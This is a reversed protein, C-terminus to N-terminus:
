GQPPVLGLPDADPGPVAAVLQAAYVTPAAPKGVVGPVAASATTPRPQRHPAPEPAPLPVGRTSPAPLAATVLVSRGGVPGATNQVEFAGRDITGNVIRPFGPGRQDWDPADTNDGSDIAPSGPLLAMTLTPGGNDQLPGLKPDVDLLDTPAYGSGGMSKGFLNYASIALAGDLDPGNGQDYAQNGAVVSDLVSVGGSKVAIGGGGGWCEFPSGAGNAAVTSHDLALTAGAANYVGGGYGTCSDDPVGYAANFAVTSSSVALSGANYIGGGYSLALGYGTSATVSNGSVTTSDIAMVGTNAIGGGYGFAAYWFNSAASSNGSVTSDALLLSGSNYIGGGYVSSSSSAVANGTVAVGALTLTGQNLIGGGLMAAGHTATLTYIQASVDSRVWFVSGTRHADVTLKDAGPGAIILDDTIEPLPKTLNITGQVSFVILDEGAQADARSLCFRLDGQDTATGVGTDGLSNVVCTSPVERAEL